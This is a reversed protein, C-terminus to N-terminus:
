RIEQHRTSGNIADERPMITLVVTSNLMGIGRRRHHGEEGPHNRGDHQKLTTRATSTFASNLLGALRVTPSTSSQSKKLDRFKSRISNLNKKKKEPQMNRNQLTRLEPYPGVLTLTSEHRSTTPDLPPTRSLIVPNSLPLRDSTNM